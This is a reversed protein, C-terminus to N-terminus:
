AIRAQHGRKQGGGMKGNGKCSAVIEWCDFSLQSQGTVGYSRRGRCHSVDFSSTLGAGPM